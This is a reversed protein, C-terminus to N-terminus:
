NKENYGEVKYIYQKENILFMETIIPLIGIVIGLIFKVKIVELITGGIGGLVTISAFFVIM